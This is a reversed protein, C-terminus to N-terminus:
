APSPQPPFPVPRARSGAAKPKTEKKAGVSKRATSKKASPKIDKLDKKAEARKSNASTQLRVDLGLQTLAAKSIALRPASPPGSVRKAPAKAKTTSTKSNTKAAGKKGGASMKEKASKSSATSRSRSSSTAAAPKPAAAKKPKPATARRNPLKRTGTGRVKRANSAKKAPKEEEASLRVVGSPGNPLEFVGQEVGRNIANSIFGSFRGDEEVDFAHLIYKKIAQRSLGHGHDGEDEIAESIMAIYPPHLTDRRVRSKKEGDKKDKSDDKPAPSASKDDKKNPSSEAVSSARSSTM